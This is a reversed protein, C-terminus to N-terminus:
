SLDGGIKQHEVGCFDLGPETMNGCWAVADDQTYRKGIQCVRQEICRERADPAARVYEFAMSTAERRAVKM